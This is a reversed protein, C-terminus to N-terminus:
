GSPPCPLSLGRGFSLVTYAHALLMQGCRLMCGWGVDSTLESGLICEFGERYTFWLRSHVDRLAERM